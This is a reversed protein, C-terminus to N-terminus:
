KVLVDYIITTTVEQKLSLVKLTQSVHHIGTEM